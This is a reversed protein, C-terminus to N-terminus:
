GLDVALDGKYLTATGGPRCGHQVKYENPGAALSFAGSDAWSEDPLEAISAESGAVAAATTVNYLRAICPNLVNSTKGHARLRITPAQWDAPDLQEELPPFSDQFTVEGGLPLFFFFMAM